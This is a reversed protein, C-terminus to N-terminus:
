QSPSAKKLLCAFVFFHGSQASVTSASALTHLCQPYRKALEQRPHRPLPCLSLASSAAATVAVAAMRTGVFMVPGRPETQATHASELM